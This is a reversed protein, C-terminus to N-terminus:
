VFFNIIIRAIRYKWTYDAKSLPLFGESKLAKFKKQLEPSRNRLLLRIYDITLFSLRRKVGMTKESELGEAAEVSLYLDKMRHLMKHFDTLRRLRMELSRQRTISSPNIYYGYFHGNTVVTTSARCYAKVLFDEDEHYCEEAFTIDHDNLFRRRFFHGCASGTFNQSELYEAGSEYTIWFLISFHPKFAKEKVKCMKFSFVDPHESMLHPICQTFGPLLYDDADVFMLYTGTAQRMGKNRAAGLGKGDDDTVILEYTEKEMGQRQISDLCRQLLVPDAKGFFPIIISIYPQM